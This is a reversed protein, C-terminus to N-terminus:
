PYCQVFLNYEESLVPNVGKPEHQETQPIQVDMQILTSLPMGYVVEPMVNLTIHNAGVLKTTCLLDNSLNHIRKTRHM